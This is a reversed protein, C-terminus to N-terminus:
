NDRTSAQKREQKKKLIRGKEEYNFYTKKRRLFYLEKLGVNSSNWSFLTLLGWGTSLAGGVWGPTSSQRSQIFNTTAILYCEGAGRRASKKVLVREGGGTVAGGELTVHKPGAKVLQWTKEMENRM